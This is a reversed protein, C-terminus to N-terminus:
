PIQVFMGKIKERISKKTEDLTPIESFAPDHVFWHEVKKSELVFDPCYKKECLVIVKDSEEVMERTVIKSKWSSADIGEEKLAEITRGPLLQGEDTEESGASTAQHKPYIQNFLAQAIPSRFKNGRCLFLVKMTDNPYQPKACYGGRAVIRCLLGDNQM